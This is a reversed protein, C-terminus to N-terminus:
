PSTDPQPSSSDSGQGGSDGTEADSPPGLIAEMWALVAKKQDEEPANLDLRLYQKRPPPTPTVAV